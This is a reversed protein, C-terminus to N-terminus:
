PGKTEGARKAKQWDWFNLGSDAHFWELWENHEAVHRGYWRGWWEDWTGPFGATEWEGIARVILHGKDEDHEDIRDDHTKADTLDAFLAKAKLPEKFHQYVALQTDPPLLHIPYHGPRCGVGWPTGWLDSDYVCTSREWVHAHRPEVHAAYWRSCATDREKTVPLGAYTTTLRFRRCVVCTSREYTVPVFCGAVFVIPVGLVAWRIHGM